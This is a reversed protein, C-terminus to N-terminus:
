EVVTVLADTRRMTRSYSVAVDSTVLTVCIDFGM